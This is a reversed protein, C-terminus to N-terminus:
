HWWPTKDILYNMYHGEESPHYRMFALRIRCVKQSVSYYCTINISSMNRYTRIQNLFLRALFCFSSSLVVMAVSSVYGHHNLIAVLFAMTIWFPPSFSADSASITHEQFRSIPNRSKHSLINIPISNWIPTSSWCNTRFIWLPNSKHVYKDSVAANTLM